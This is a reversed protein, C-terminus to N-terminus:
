MNSVVCANCCYLVCLVCLECGVHCVCSVVCRCGLGCMLYSEYGVICQACVVCCVCLMCMIVVFVAGLVCSGCCVYVVVINTARTFIALWTQPGSESPCYSDALLTASVGVQCFTEVM